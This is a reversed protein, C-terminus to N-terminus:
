IIFPKDEPQAECKPPTERHAMRLILSKHFDTALHPPLMSSKKLEYITPGDNELNHGLLNESQM